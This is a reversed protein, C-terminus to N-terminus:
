IKTQAGPISPINDLFQVICRLNTPRVLHWPSSMRNNLLYGQFDFNRFAAIVADLSESSASLVFKRNGLLTNWSAFFYRLEDTFSHRLLYGVELSVVVRRGEIKRFVKDLLNKVVIFNLRNIPFNYDAIRPLEQSYEGIM